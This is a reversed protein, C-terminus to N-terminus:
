LLSTSLGQASGRVILDGIIQEAEVARGARMDRFMSSTLTSTRDTLVALARTRFGDSLPQGAAAIVATVEAFLTEIFPEGAPTRAVQWVDAGMLCTIAALTALFAWKEWMERQIDPSLRANFAAGQLCEDLQLIRRTQTGDWEGYVLDHFAGHDVIRGEEDLSTVIQALGGILRQAGLQSRLADMHRMGNLVPFIMTDPSVHPRIEDIAASLQYAKVALLIADFPGDPKAGVIVKVPVTTDGDETRLVLGRALQQARGPRVLFTV